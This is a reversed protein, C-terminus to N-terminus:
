INQTMFRCMSTYTPSEIDVRKSIDNDLIVFVTAHQLWSIYPLVVRNLSGLAAWTTFSVRSMKDYDVSLREIPLCLWLWRRICKSALKCVCDVIKKAITYSGHVIKNAADEKGSIM